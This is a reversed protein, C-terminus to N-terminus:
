AGPKVNVQGKHRRGRCGRLLPEGAATLAHAGGSGGEPRMGPACRWVVQQASQSHQILHPPQPIVCAHACACMRVHNCVHLCARLCADVRVCVLVHVCMWASTCVCRSICTRANVCLCADVHVCMCDCIMVCVCVRVRIYISLAGGGLSWMYGARTRLANEWQARVRERARMTCTGTMAVRTSILPPTTYWFM